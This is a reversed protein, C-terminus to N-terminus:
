FACTPMDRNCQVLVIIGFSPPTGTTMEPGCMGPPAEFGEIRGSLNPARDNFIETCSGAGPALTVTRSSDDADTLRIMDSSANCVNLVELCGSTRDKVKVEEWSPTAGSCTGPFQFPLTTPGPPDTEEIVTATATETDEFSGGGLDAISGTASFTTTSEITVTRSGRTELDETGDWSAVVPASTRAILICEGRSPEDGVGTGVLGPRCHPSDTQDGADWSVVVEEGTCVFEPEVSVSIAPPPTASRDVECGPLGLAMVLVLGGRAGRLDM